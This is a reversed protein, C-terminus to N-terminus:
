WSSLHFAFDLAMGGEGGGLCCVNYLRQMDYNHGNTSGIGHIHAVGRVRKAERLEWHETEGVHRREWAEEREVRVGFIICQPRKKPVALM